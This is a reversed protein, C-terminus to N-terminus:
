VKSTTRRGFGDYPHPGRSTNRVLPPRSYVRTRGGSVELSSDTLNVPYSRPFM